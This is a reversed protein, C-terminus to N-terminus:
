GALSGSIASLLADDSVIWWKGDRYILNVTFVTETYAAEEDISAEMAMRLTEKVFDERYENNEDYVDEMNTAAAVREELLKQARQRLPEMVSEWDLRKVRYDFAVGSETPYCEGVPTFTLNQQYTEWLMQGLPEKSPNEVGLNPNGLIMGGAAGYDGRSVADLMADARQRAIPSSQLLMPLQGQFHLAAYIGIGAVALAVLALLVAFCRVAIKM